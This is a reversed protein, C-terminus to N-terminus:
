KPESIIVAYATSLSKSDRYFIVSQSNSMSRNTKSM